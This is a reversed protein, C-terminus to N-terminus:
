SRRGNGRIACALDSNPSQHATDPSPAECGDRDIWQDEANWRLFDHGRGSSSGSSFGDDHFGGAGPPPTTVENSM